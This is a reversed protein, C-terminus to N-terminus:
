QPLGGESTVNVRLQVAAMAKGKSEVRWSILQWDQVKPL